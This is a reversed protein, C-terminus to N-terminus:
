EGHIIIHNIFLYKGCLQLVSKYLGVNVRVSPCAHGPALFEWIFPTPINTPFKSNFRQLLGIQAHGLRKQGRFSVM